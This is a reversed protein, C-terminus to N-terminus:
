QFHTSVRIDAETSVAKKPLATLKPPEHVTEGFKIEDRFTEFGEEKDRKRKKFNMFGDDESKSLMDAKRQEKRLKRRATKSLNQNADGSLLFNFINIFLFYIFVNIVRIFLDTQHM